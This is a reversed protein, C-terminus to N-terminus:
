LDDKEEKSYMFSIYNMRNILKDKAIIISLPFGKMEIINLEKNFWLYSIQTDEKIKKFFYGNKGILIPLLEEKIKLELKEYIKISSNLIEDIRKKILDEAGM